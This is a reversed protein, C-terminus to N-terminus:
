EKHGTIFAIGERSQRSRSIYADLDVIQSHPTPPFAHRCRPDFLSVLQVNLNRNVLGCNASHMLFHM